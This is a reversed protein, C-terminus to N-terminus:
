GEKKRLIAKTIRPTKYNQMFKLIIWEIESSVTRPIKIPIVNFRYITKPLIAMLIRGIWSCLLDKWKKSDIETERTFIKYNKAFLDKVEDTLNIGLFKKKNVWLFKKHSKLCSQNKKTKRIIWQQTLFAISKQINIKYGAIEKKFEADLLITFYIENNIRGTFEEQEKLQSYNRQKKM